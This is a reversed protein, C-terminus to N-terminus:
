IRHGQCMFIRLSVFYNTTDTGFSAFTLQDIQGHKQLISQKHSKQPQEQPHQKVACIEKLRQQEQCYFSHIKIEILQLM